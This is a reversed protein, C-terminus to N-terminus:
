AGADSGRDITWTWTATDLSLTHERGGCTVPLLYHMAGATWGTRPAGTVQVALDRGDWLVRSPVPTGGRREEVEVIVSQRETDM